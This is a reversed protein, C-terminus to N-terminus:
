DSGGLYACLTELGAEVDKPGAEFLTEGTENDIIAKGAWLVVIGHGPINIHFLLGVITSTGSGLDEITTWHDRDTVSKGTDPNTLTGLFVAHTKVSVPDGASDSFTTARFKSHFDSVVDFPCLDTLVNTGSFTFTETTPPAASAAGASVLAAASLLIGAVFGAARRRM